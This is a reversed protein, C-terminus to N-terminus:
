MLSFNFSQRPTCPEHFHLQVREWVKDGCIWRAPSMYRCTRPVSALRVSTKLLKGQDRWVLTPITGRNPWSWKTWIRELEDIASGDSAIHDRWQSSILVGVNCCCESGYFFESKVLPRIAKEDSPVVFCERSRSRFQLMRDLPWEIRAQFCKTRGESYIHPEAQYLARKKTDAKYIILSSEQRGYEWPEM